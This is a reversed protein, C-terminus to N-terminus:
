PPSLLLAPLVPVADSAICESVSETVQEGVLKKKPLVEEQVADSLLKVAGTVPSVIVKEWFPPVPATDNVVVVHEKDAAPDQETVIVPVPTPLATIWAEYGPSEAFTALTPECDTVIVFCGAESTCFVTIQLPFMPVLQERLRPEVTVAPFRMTIATPVM